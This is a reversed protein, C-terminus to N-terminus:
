SSTTSLPKAGTAPASEYGASYAYGYGYAYGHRRGRRQRVRNLVIGLVPASVQELNALAHRVQPLSTRGAQTVLLVGDVHRSLAVADNVPLTPASDVIVYDFRQKLQEIITTMQRGSLMESPNPPVKGSVIVSLHDDVTQLTLDIPEGLLNDTLGLTNGLGFVQHVQPRRLDADVLVVTSGTQALVVALNTATTTKGEGPTASTVEIVRTDREFGIFQVNTRLARYAEVAPVAPKSLVIPRNDPPPDFPVVALVPLDLGLKALDDPSRISDDLHDVLFVAGLGLLLGVVLALMATRVPTPAVPVTPPYAPAVLQASGTTLAADVQVQDLRTNFVAQTDVLKARQVDLLAKQDTSATVLRADIADVQVQLENVKAQLETGADALGQIANDRKVTTYARVYANALIAATDPDGSKVAVAVVDSNASASGNVGPPAATLGLDKIVQQRVVDGQLVEIENTVIRARDTFVVGNGFLAEGPKSQLLMRAEAVYTPREIASMAVAPAVTAGIAVVILWKRRVVVRWYDRLTLPPQEIENM